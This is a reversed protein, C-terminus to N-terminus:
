LWRLKFAMAEDEHEFFVSPGCITFHGFVYKGICNNKCWTRITPSYDLTMHFIIAENDIDIEVQTLGEVKAYWAKHLMEKKRAEQSRFLERINKWLLRM